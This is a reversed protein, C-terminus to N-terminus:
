INRKKDILPKNYVIGDDFQYTPKDIEININDKIWPNSKQEPNELYWDYPNQKWKLSNMHNTIADLIWNQTRNVNEIFPTGFFEQLHKNYGEDNISPLSDDETPFEPITLDEPIRIINGSQHKRILKKM